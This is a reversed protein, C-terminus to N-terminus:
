EDAEQPEGRKQESAPGAGEPTEVPSYDSWKGESSTTKAEEALREFQEESSEESASTPDPQVQQQQRRSQPM